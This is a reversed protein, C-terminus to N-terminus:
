GTVAIIEMYISETFLGLTRIGRQLSIKGVAPLFAHWQSGRTPHWPKKKEEDSLMRNRNESRGVGVGVGLWVGVGCGV